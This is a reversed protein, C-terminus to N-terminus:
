AILESFPYYALATGPEITLGEPIELLGDCHSIAILTASDQNPYPTAILRGQDDQHITVRMFETRQGPHNQTFNAVATHHTVLPNILGQRKLIFPKALLCFTVFCSVPNGPLGIFDADGLKGFAVPKGPKMNIKWFNISGLNELASKVHDKDGVSVGGSSIIIDCQHQAESLAQHTILFDDEIAGLDIVQVSISQLLSILMSHNSNYIQGPKLTSDASALECGTSLVGIRLKQYVNLSSKGVSALVGIDAAHIRKGMNLIIQGQSIHCGRTRINKGTEIKNPFLIGQSVHQCDEQIVVTNAGRPVPAGTLIKATTQRALTSPSDGAAITQSVPLPIEDTSVDQTNLAYGDMASADFPPVDIPSIVPEALIRGMAHDLLCEELETPYRAQELMKQQAQKLSLPKNAM